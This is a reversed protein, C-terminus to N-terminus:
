LKRMFNNGGPHFGVAKLLQHYRMSGGLDTIQVFKADNREAWYVFARVLLDTGGQSLNLVDQACLIGCYNEAVVGVLCGVVEEDKEAVMAFGKPLECCTVFTRQMTAENMPFEAMMSERHAAQALPLVQDCDEFTAQRISIM